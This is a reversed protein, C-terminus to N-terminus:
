RTPDGSAAGVVCCLHLVLGPVIFCIYGLTVFFIWALGNLLQGKYIQGLGPFFLSLLAAVAPNWKPYRKDNVV